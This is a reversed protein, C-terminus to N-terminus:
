AAAHLLHWLCCKLSLLGHRELKKKTSTCNIIAYVGSFICCFKDALVISDNNTLAKYNVLSSKDPFIIKNITKYERSRNTIYTHKNLQNGVLM